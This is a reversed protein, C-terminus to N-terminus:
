VDLLIVLENFELTLCSAVESKHGVVVATAAAAIRKNDSWKRKRIRLIANLIVKHWKGLQCGGCMRTSVAYDSIIFISIFVLTCFELQM